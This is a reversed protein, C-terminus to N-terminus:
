ESRLAITPDLRSARRAPIWGAILATILLVIAAGGLTAPDTPSVDFVAASLTRALGIAGALGIAVGVLADTMAQRAILYRVQRAEAGLALRVGIERTRLTVLYAIVGYIGAAGIATAVIAAIALLFLTFTTRATSAALLDSLPMVRYLPLTADVDAIVRRLAPAVGAPDGSTRVVIAVNRPTWPTGAVTLTVLPCYVEETQPRELGDGHVDGAVGVITHWPDTPNMRIRKGIASSGNWYRRAFAASVIVEPPGVAPEGRVSSEAFTRGALLPIGAARFYGPTIFDISHINPFAGMGLPHDEVWVASDQRSEADLPLKTIAGAAQVSTVTRIGDLVREITTAADRAQPYSVPPLAIRFALAHQADFGPSVAQLRGFSRAFLGAGSVLILALAVQAIVLARRVRNRARGSTASRGIATLASVLSVRNLRYLPLASVVAAAIAASAVVLLLVAGDLRVEALRPITAAVEVSKLMEVGAVACLFGLLAGTATIVFAESLAEGLLRTRAAGLASRIALERHRGEFRALFLNAVNACALLFLLGAAGLVIWLVRGVDGVIVDRLPRVVPRMHIQAIGAASLRGPFVEPVRPLLRALELEAAAPTSGARLRAIGHFVFAASKTKAPDLQLPVWLAAADNPFQFDEPMVGVVARMVGDIMIRRGLIGSDAAFTRAWLRQGLVVVPPAGVQDDAETLTRGLMPRARLVNFVSATAVVASVREPKEAAAASTQSGGVNVATSRYAGVDTFVRNDRRYLLYTADSQDVQSVGSVVISHSLDVLDEAHDYPLPRLLVGNVLTYVAATGGIGLMLTITAALTFMPARLLRRIAHRIM